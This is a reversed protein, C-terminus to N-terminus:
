CLPKDPPCKSTFGERRREAEREIQRQRERLAAARADLSRREASTNAQALQGALTDLDRGLQALEASM